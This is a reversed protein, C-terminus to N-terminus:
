IDFSLERYTKMMAEVNKLPVTMEVPIHGIYGGIETKLARFTAKVHEEVEEPTGYSLINQRDLDPRICVKRKLAQGVKEIDMLPVQSNIEDFGTEVLDDLIPLTYGCTHYHAFTEKAHIAEVLRVYYPKFVERWQRPNIMLNTQSGWDDTILIADIDYQNLIQIREILFEVLLELLQFFEAKKEVIDVLANEFGRVYTYTHFISGAWAMMYHQRHDFKRVEEMEHLGEEGFYPDPLRYQKLDQWEKMPHDVVM